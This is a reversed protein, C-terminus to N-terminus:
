CMTFSNLRGAGCIGSQKKTLMRSGKTRINEVPENTMLFWEVSELAKDPQEEKVYIVNVKHSAKLYKIKELIEPRKVEFSRYRIQFIAEYEKLGRRSDRPIMAKVSGDCPKKRIEDLIKTNGVTKRNRAIRILFAQGKSAAEDFLEYMDGERDCVTVIYVDEPLELTSAGLTQLWRFSEKEELVRTKKSDHTRTNDKPQERNYSSQALVGLMLGDATVAICSHINVGLTKDGIYGIGDMKTQTNYNLSTTDQIALITKGSECIRKVTAERHTRLIEERDLGDNNLM